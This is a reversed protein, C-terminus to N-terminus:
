DNPEMFVIKNISNRVTKEWESNGVIAVIWDSCAPVHSAAPFSAHAFFWLSEELTEDAHWTTMIVNEDAPQVDVALAAEDFLDHSRACDPGWACLYVLGKRILESAEELIQDCPLASSDAALFLAFKAAEPQIDNALGSFKDSLSLYLARHPDKRGLLQGVQSQFQAILKEM